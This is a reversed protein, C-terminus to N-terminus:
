PQDEDAGVPEVLVIGQEEVAVRCNAYTFAVLGRDFSAFTGHVDGAGALVSHFSARLTTRTLPACLPLSAVARAVSHAPGGERPRPIGFPQPSESM